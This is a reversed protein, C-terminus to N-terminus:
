NTENSAQTIVPTPAVTYLGDKCEGRFYAWEDCESGSPFKCVGYQSGDATTRIERTLGQDACYKAAPNSIGANPNTSDSASGSVTVNITFTKSPQVEKEQPRHYILTLAQTGSTVANFTLTAKGPSGLKENDAKFVAEGSLQLVPNDVPKVEWTYGTSPNSELVIIISDGPQLTFEKGQDAEAVQIQKPIPLVETAVEVKPAVTPKAAPTCATVFLTVILVLSLWKATKKM